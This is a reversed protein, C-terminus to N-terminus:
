MRLMSALAKVLAILMLILLAEEMPGIEMYPKCGTFRMLISSDLTALGHISEFIRFLM